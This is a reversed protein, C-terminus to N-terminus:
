AASSGGREIRATVDVVRGPENLPPEQRLGQHPRHANFHRAYEALVERLHREGVILVHDLCERRPTGAFREAFANGAAVPCAGPNVGTGNGAFVEDFRRPSSLM